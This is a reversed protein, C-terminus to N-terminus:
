HGLHMLLFLPGKQGRGSAIEGFSAGLPLALSVTPQQLEQQPLTGWGWLDQLLFWIQVLFELQWGPQVTTRFDELHLSGQFVVPVPSSVPTVQVGAEENSDLTLSSILEVAM